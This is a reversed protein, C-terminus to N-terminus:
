TNSVIEVGNVTWRINSIYFCYESDSYTNAELLIGAFDPSSNYLELLESATMAVTSWYGRSSTTYSGKLLFSNIDTDVVYYDIAIRLERIDFLDENDFITRDFPTVCIGHLGAASATGYVKYVNTAGEFETLYEVSPSTSGSASSYVLNNTNGNITRYLPLTTELPDGLIIRLNSLYYCYDSTNQENIVLVYFGRNYPATSNVDAVVDALDMTITNWKSNTNLNTTYNGHLGTQVTYYSESDVMEATKGMVDIALQAYPYKQLVKEYVSIDYKRTYYVGNYGNLNTGDTKVKIVGERDEFDPLYELTAGSTQATASSSTASYPYIGYMAPSTSLGNYAPNNWTLAEIRVNAVYFSYNDVANLGISVFSGKTSSVNGMNDWNDILTALSIKLTVWENGAYNSLGRNYNDNTQLVTAGDLEDSDWWVDVNVTAEPFVDVIEEYYSKDYKAEIVIGNIQIYDSLTTVKYVNTVGEYEELYEIKGKSTSKVGNCVYYANSVDADITNWATECEYISPLTEESSEEESSEEESSEAPASSSSEVTESSEASASSSSEVTESSEAPASSSSEVTESSEASASSSSEVTESSEAPASSSSEVTESSEAPASSSSEVTESSEAPTVSSSEVTESSEVSSNVSSTIPAEDDLAWRFLTITAGACVVSLVVACLFRILKKM